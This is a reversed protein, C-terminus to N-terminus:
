MISQMNIGEWLFQLHLKDAQIFNRFMNQMVPAELDFLNNLFNIAESGLHTGQTFRRIREVLRLVDPAPLFTWSGGAFWFVLFDFLFKKLETGWSMANIGPLKVFSEGFLNLLFHAPFCQDPSKPLLPECGLHLQLLIIETGQKWKGKWPCHLWIIKTHALHKRYDRQWRSAHPKTSLRM